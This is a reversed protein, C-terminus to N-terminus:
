EKNLVWRSGDSFHVDEVLLEQKTIGDCFDDYAVFEEEENWRIQGKPQIPGSYGLHAVGVADIKKSTRNRLKFSMKRRSPYEREMYVHVDTIEVPSKPDNRIDVETRRDKAFDAETYHAKEWKEQMPGLRLQPPIFYWQGQDRYAILETQEVWSESSTQFRGTGNLRWAAQEATFRDVGGGIPMIGEATTSIRLPYDDSFEFDVMRLELIKEVVCRKYPESYTKGRNRGLLAGIEESRGEAQATIFQALRQQLSSQLDDPLKKPVLVRQPGLKIQATVFSNLCLVVALLSQQIRM